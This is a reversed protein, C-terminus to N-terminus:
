SVTLFKLIANNLVKFGLKQYPFYPILILNNFFHTKIRSLTVM